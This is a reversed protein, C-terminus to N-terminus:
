RAGGNPKMAASVTKEMNATIKEAKDMVRHISDKELKETAIASRIAVADKQQDIKERDVKTNTDLKTKELGLKKNAEQGKRVMDKERLELEDKKLDVLPDSASDKLLQEYEAVFEAILEQEIVAVRKQMEQMMQQQQQQMMQQQQPPMQQLQQQQMQQQQMQPAMEAQVQEQAKLSIHQMIHGQVNAMVMPNGNVVSSYM